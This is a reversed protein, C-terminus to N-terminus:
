AGPKFIMLYLIVLFLVTVLQGGLTVKKSAEVDGEAVKRESPMILGSVVGTIAIWVLFSLSIWLEDFGIVEDSLLIMIIGFVGTAVLAPLYVKRGNDAAIGIFRGISGDDRMREFTLPHVVAPAFAVVVAVIHLFLV